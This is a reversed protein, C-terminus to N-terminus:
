SPLRSVKAMILCTAFARWPVAVDSVGIAALAALHDDLTPLPAEHHHGSGEPRPPVVRARAARLRGDWGPEVTVHDLNVLWGDPALLRSLQSYFVSLQKRDLHHSARSTVVVDADRPLDADPLSMMEALTFETRDAFERLRERAIDRMTTSADTWHGRAAPLERLFAALMAGPGAAVDVVSRGDPRDHAVIMAAMARPLALLVDQRDNATWDQAFAADSWATEAFGSTM